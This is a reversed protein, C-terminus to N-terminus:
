KVVSNTQESTTDSVAIEAPKSVLKPDLEKQIREVGKLIRDKTKEADPTSSNITVRYMAEWPFSM